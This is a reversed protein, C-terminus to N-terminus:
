DARLASTPNIRSARRAPLWAAVLSVVLTVGVVSAYTAADAPHIGFLLGAMARGGVAALLLGAAIGVIALRGAQGVVLGVVQRRTAGLALRIGIERTRAGVNQSIVGYIGVAALGIAVIAFLALVQLYLRPQAVAEDAIQSMARNHSFPLDPDLAAVIARAAGDLDPAPGRAKVVVTFFDIPFQRYTVYIAPPIPGSPGFERVDAIVGVVDGGARDDGLGLRSTVTLHHGLGSQNPWLLRAATANVVAVSPTGRRDDDTVGRGAIVRIGMAKFYGPTIIRLQVAVRKALDLPLPQNDRDFISYHYDFDQLPLGFVGGAAEVDPRARLRTLLDDVFALRRSANEYARTSLSVEFTHVRSADLGLDVRMLSLFSRALLGAGVLLTVALAIEVAVLGGRLRRAGADSTARAGGARLIGIVDGGSARWAPMAGFLLAATATIAGTYVMTWGDLRTHDLLPIGASDFSAMGRVAAGALALGAVGGACSLLVNEVFLSRVLRARSAGLAARVALDRSRGFASGLTLSSVNVCGVLFVLAVAGLLVRMAPRINGVLSERLGQVSSTLRRDNPYAEALHASVARMREGAAALSVGGALRGIVTLYHAGRQTALDSASFRLPVWLDMGLPYDFGRPMVGVVERPTGALVITRGVVAPDGGFRRQWLGFSLIAEGPGGDVDDTPQFVRGYLPAVGLARFFGSTVGADVLQEADGEGTLTSGALKVAALDEFADTGRRWDEFDPASVSGEGAADPKDVATTAVFVLRDPDPYPLPRWFVSRAASYIATNAGIGLALTVVVAITFGPRHALARVAHRVDQALTDLSWRQLRLWLAHRLASTLHACTRGGRAGGHRDAYAFEALWEDRWNRREDVPVLWALLRIARAAFGPKRANPKPPPAM